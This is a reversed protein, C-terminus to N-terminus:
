CPSTGKLDEDGASSSSTMLPSTDVPWPSQNFPFCCTQILTWSSNLQTRCFESAIRKPPLVPLCRFPYRKVLCEALWVWDSYRRTVSSGRLSSSVVYVNHKIIFGALESRLRVTVEDVPLTAEPDETGAVAAAVEGAESVYSFPREGGTVNARSRFRSATMSGDLIRSSSSAFGRDDDAHDGNTSSSGKKSRGADSSSSSAFGRFASNFGITGSSPLGDRPQSFRAPAPAHAANNTAGLSSSHWPDSM